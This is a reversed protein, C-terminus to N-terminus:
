RRRAKAGGRTSLRTRPAAKAKPDSGGMSALESRAERAILSRLGERVVDSIRDMGSAERADAVLEDDLILTTRM